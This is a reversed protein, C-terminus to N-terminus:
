EIIIETKNEMSFIGQGNEVNTHVIVPEAFPNDQALYYAELSKFFLYKDRSISNIEIRFDVEATDRPPVLLEVNYTGGDFLNDNLLFTGNGGREVGPTISETWTSGWGGGQDYRLFVNFEYYDDSDLPDQLQITLADMLYGDLNPRSEPSYEPNSVNPLIPVQQVASVPEYDPAEATIKYIKGSELPASLELLYTRFINGIVEDYIPYGEDDFEGTFQYTFTTDFSEELQGLLLDNEYLNITAGWVDDPDDSSLIPISKTLYATIKTDGAKYFSSLVLQPEHEPIDIDVVQECAIIFILFIFPIYKM